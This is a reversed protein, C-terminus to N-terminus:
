SAFSEVTAECTMVRADEPALVSSMAAPGFNAAIAIRFACSIPQCGIRNRACTDAADGAASSAASGHLAKPTTVALEKLDIPSGCGDLIADAVQQPAQRGCPATRRPSKDLM